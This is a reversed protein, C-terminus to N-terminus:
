KEGKWEQLYAVARDYDNVMRYNHKNMAFALQDESLVGKPAKLELWLTRGDKAVIALDPSGATLGMAKEYTIQWPTRKGENKVRVTVFGLDRAAKVVLKQLADEPRRAPASKKM